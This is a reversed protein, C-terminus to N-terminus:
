RPEVQVPEIIPTRSTSARNNLAVNSDNYCYIICNALTINM